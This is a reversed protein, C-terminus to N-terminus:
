DMQPNTKRKINSMNQRAKKVSKERLELLMRIDNKYSEKENPYEHARRKLNTIQRSIERAEDMNKLKFSEMAKKEDVEVAKAGVIFNLLKEKWDMNSYKRGLIKEMETLPPFLRALYELRGPIMSGFYEKEPIGKWPQLAPQEPYRTIMAPKKATGFYFQQNLGYELPTKIVPSIQALLDKVSPSLKLLDVAPNFGELKLYRHKGNKSGIYVPSAKQLWEDHMENLPDAGAYVEINKKAKELNAFKVPTAAMAELQLPINKRSWTYFPAIRKFVSREIQTLDDYDFLYKKVSQGAEFASMGKEQKNIFHALKDSMEVFEGVNGGIKNPFHTAAKGLKGTAVKDVFSMVEDDISRGVEAGSWGSRILGQKKFNDMVVEQTKTLPRGWMYNWALNYAKAYDRPDTVDALYNQWKNSIANRTHFAVRWITAARKWLNQTGDIIKLVAKIDDRNTLAEYTKDIHDAIPKEFFLGRLAPAKTETLGAKVTQDMYGMHKVKDFMHQSSIVKAANKGQVALIKPINTSFLEVGIAKNIEPISAQSLEGFQELSKPDAAQDVLEGDKWMRGTRTSVVYEDVGDNLKMLTRQMWQPSATNFERSGFGIYGKLKPDIKENIHSLYTYNPDDILKEALNEVSKYGERQSHLSRIIDDSSQLEKGSLTKIKPLVEPLVDMGMVKKIEPAREIQQAINKMEDINKYLGEKKLSKAIKIAEDFNEQAMYHRINRSKQEIDLLESWREPEIGRPRIKETFVKAIDGSAETMKSIAPVELLKGVLKSEKVAYGAKAMTKVLLGGPIINLPDFAVDGAFGVAGRVFREGINELNMEGAHEPKWGAKDLSEIFSRKEELSSGKTFSDLLSFDGKDKAATIADYIVSQTGYGLRNINELIVFLGKAGTKLAPNIYKKVAGTIPKPIIDVAKEALGKPEDEGLSRTAGFSKSTIKDISPTEAPIIEKIEIVM